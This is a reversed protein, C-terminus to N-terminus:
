IEFSSPMKLTQTETSDQIPTSVTTATKRNSFILISSFKYNLTKLCPRIEAIITSSSKHNQILLNKLFHKRMRGSFRLDKQPPRKFLWPKSSFPSPLKISLKQDKLQFNEWKRQKQGDLSVMKKLELRFSDFYFIYKQNM